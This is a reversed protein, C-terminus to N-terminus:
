KDLPYLKNLYKTLEPDNIQAIDEPYFDVNDISIDDNLRSLRKKSEESSIPMKITDIDETM